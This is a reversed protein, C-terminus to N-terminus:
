QLSQLWLDLLLRFGCFSNLATFFSKSFKKKWKLGPFVNTYPLAKIIVSQYMAYQAAFHHTLFSNPSKLIEDLNRNGDDLDGM